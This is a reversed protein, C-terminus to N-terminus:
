KSCSLLLILKAMTQTVPYHLFPLTAEDLLQFSSFKALKAIDWTPGKYSGGIICGARCRKPRAEGRRWEHCLPLKNESVYFRLSKKNCWELKGVEVTQGHLNRLWAAPARANRSCRMFWLKKFGDPDLSNVPASWKGISLLYSHILTLGLYLFRHM